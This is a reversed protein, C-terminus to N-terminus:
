DLLGVKVQGCDRFTNNDDVSPYHWLLHFHSLVVHRSHALGREGSCPVHNYSLIISGTTGMEERGGKVSIPRESRELM